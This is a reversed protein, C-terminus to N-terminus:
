RGQQTRTSSQNDTARGLAKADLPKAKFERVPRTPPLVASRPVGLMDAAETSVRAKPADAFNLVPQGATIRQVEAQATRAWALVRLTDEYSVRAFLRAYHEREGDSRAHIGLAEIPSLQPSSFTGRPGQMLMRARKIEPITLSWVQALEEDTPSSTSTQAVTRPAHQTPATQTMGIDVALATPAAIGLLASLACQCLSNLGARGM